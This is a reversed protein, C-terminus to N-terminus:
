NLIIEDVGSQKFVHCCDAGFQYTESKVEIGNQFVQVTATKITAKLSLLQADTLVVYENVTSTKEFTLTQGGILTKVEANSVPQGQATLIRISIM